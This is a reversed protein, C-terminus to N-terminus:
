SFDIVNVSHPQLIAEYDGKARKPPLTEIWVENKDIDNYSDTSKGAIRRERVIYSSSSEMEGLRIQLRQEMSPDKNVVAISVTGNDSHRTALIDLTQTSVEKGDKGMVTLRRPEEESWSDLVMDGMHNVYLDFVHYTSRLVIGEKHSYICGRTNLIPAFNAMGVM